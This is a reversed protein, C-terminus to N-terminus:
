FVKAPVQSIGATCDLGTLVAALGDGPLKKLFRADLRVRLIELKEAGAPVLIRKKVEITQFIGCGDLVDHEQLAFRNGGLPGGKGLDPFHDLCPFDAPDDAPLEEVLLGLQQVSLFGSISSIFAQRM